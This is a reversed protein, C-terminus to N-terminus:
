NLKLLTIIKNFTNIVDKIPKGGGVTKIDDSHGNSVLAIEFILSILRKNNM